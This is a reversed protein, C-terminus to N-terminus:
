WSNGVMSIGRGEAERYCKAARKLDKKCGVGQAYCYGAEALADGDGWAGAIEFCRLALAKDQEIGWGNMHSVGLEYISLAFQAKRARKKIFDEGSLGEGGDAAASDDAVESSACEAAKRLWAVGERANPRMGWGHRCALAYMLMGTPHGQKAAIRLHYTSENLSGREHCEIGKDLHEEATIAVSTAGSATSRPKITSNSSALSPSDASSRGTGQVQHFASPIQTSKPANLTPPHGFTDFRNPRVGSDGPATRVRPPSPPSPPREMMREGNAKVPVVNSYPPQPQEFQFIHLDEGMMEQFILSNRQMIRGRPLSFRSYIYSPAPGYGKDFESNIQDMPDDGTMSVPTHVTDDTFVIPGESLTSPNSDSSTQRSPIDLSPRDLGGARSIPRSFNFAPTRPGRSSVSFESGVSPPRPSLSLNISMPSGPGSMGSSGSLTRSPMLGFHKPLEEDSGEAAISRISAASSMMTATGPIRPSVSRAAVNRPPALANPRRGRSRESEVSPYRKFNADRLPLDFSTQHRLSSGTEVSFTSEISAPSGARRVVPAMVVEQEDLRALPGGGRILDNLTRGAGNVDMEPAEDHISSQITSITQISSSSLRPHTSMPRQELTMLQGRRGAIERPPPPSPASRISESATEYSTEDDSSISRMYNPRGSAPGGGFGTALSGHLTEPALRSMRKGNKNGEQLQRALLRGQAAFADLPSMTPPVQGPRRELRPSPLPARPLPGRPIGDLTPISTM